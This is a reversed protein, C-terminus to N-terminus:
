ICFYAVILHRFCNVFAFKSFRIKIDRINQVLVYLTSYTRAPYVIKFANGGGACEVITLYDKGIFTNKDACTHMCLAAYIKRPNGIRNKTMVDSLFKPKPETTSHSDHPPTVVLPRRGALTTKWQLHDKVSHRRERFNSKLM